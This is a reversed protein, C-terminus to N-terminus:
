KQFLIPCINPDSLYKEVWTGSRPRSNETRLHIALSRRPSHSINQHSGHFLLRHHFSVGGCPLVDLEERWQEGEPIAIAQKLADQDQGFFDGGALLGWKHSGPVFVMPGDQPSVDSLALWATFLESGEEWADWYFQDQHWGVKTSAGGDPGTGPKILGQVWWVQVKQAGTAAAAVEGLTSSAIAERLALSSLQPQELKVLARADDGPNWGRGEPAQGTEYNGDRVADLGHAARELLEPSLVPATYRYFGDREYLAAAEAAVRHSLRQM